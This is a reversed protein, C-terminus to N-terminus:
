KDLWLINFDLLLSDDLVLPNNNPDAKNAMQITTKNVEDAATIQQSNYIPPGVHGSFYIRTTTSSTALIPDQGSSSGTPNQGGVVDSILRVDVMGTRSPLVKDFNFDIKYFVLDQEAMSSSMTNQLDGNTEYTPQSATLYNMNNDGQVRFNAKNITVTLEYLEGDDYIDLGPFVKTYTPPESVIVTREATGVNGAADTATYTITYTGATNTDVTGTVTIAEGGDATAGADTWTSGQEATDTGPTVTIV